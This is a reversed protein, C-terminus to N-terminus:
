KEPTSKGSSGGKDAATLRDLHKKFDPLQPDGNQEGTAVAKRTSQLALDFKGAAEYGDALSDYVNGSTPYLEVNRKFAAIAEDVKKMGLLAYGLQNIKAEASIRFGYRESLEQRHQEVGELGGAPLGTM